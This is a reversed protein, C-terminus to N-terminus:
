YFHEKFGKIYTFNGKGVLERFHAIDTAAKGPPLSSARLLRLGRGSDKTPHHALQKFKLLTFTKQKNM